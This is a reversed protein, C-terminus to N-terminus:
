FVDVDTVRDKQRKRGRYRESISPAELLYATWAVAFIAASTISMQQFATPVPMAPAIMHIFWLLVKFAPLLWFLIIVIQIARWRRTRWLLLSAALQTLLVLGILALGKGDAEVYGLKTLHERSEGGALGPLLSPIALLVLTIPLGIMLLRRPLGRYYDRTGPRFTTGPFLEAVRPATLLYAMWGSLALMDFMLGAVMNIEIISTVLHYPSEFLWGLSWEEPAVLYFVAVAVLPGAGILITVTTITGAQRRLLLLLGVALWQMVGWALPMLLPLTAPTEWLRRLMDVDHLAFLPLLISQGILLWLWPGLRWWSPRQRSDFSMSM